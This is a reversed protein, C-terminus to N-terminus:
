RTSTRTASRGSPRHGDHSCPTSRRGAALGDLGDTLNVANTTGLILLVALVVWGLGPSSGARSTGAPSASRPRSTPGPWAPSPSASRWWWCGGMKARKSLGLNREHSVKIWDDFAGVVGAGAIALMVLVGSRTFVPGDHVHARRLRGRRWWSPSAAWRRRAPRPSTARPCTRTSPSASATAKLWDILYRTGLLSVVLSIAAPSSCPFWTM